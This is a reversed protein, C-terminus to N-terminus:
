IKLKRIDARQNKYPDIAVSNHGLGRPIEARHNHPDACSSISQYIGFRCARHDFPPWGSWLHIRRVDSPSESDMVEVSEVPCKLQVPQVFQYPGYFNENNELCRDGWGQTLGMAANIWNQWEFRVDGDSTLQLAILGSM